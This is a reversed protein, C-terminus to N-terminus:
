VQQQPLNRPVTLTFTSGQGPTSEITIGGGLLHALETSITLGLGTGTTTRDREARYYAETLRPMMAPDIGPGSDTVRFVVLDAESEVTLSVVGHTTYKVANDLLNLLVRELLHRDTHMTEGSPTACECALGKEVALPHIAHAIEGTVEEILFTSAVPHIRGSQVQGLDLVNNVLALMRDGSRRIMKLQKRQEDNLEGPVSSLLVTSFGIISNLPTRFEHSMNALFRDEAELAETVRLRAEAEVDRQHKVTDFSFQGFAAVLSLALVVVVNLWFIQNPVRLVASRSICSEVVLPSDDVPASVAMCDDPSRASVTCQTVPRDDGATVCINSPIVEAGTPELVEAIAGLLDASFVLVGVPSDFGKSSIVRVACEATYAKGAVIKEASPWVLVPTPQLLASKAIEDVAQPDPPTSQHVQALIRGNEDTLAIWEYDNATMATQLQDTVGSAVFKDGAKLLQIRDGFTAQDGQSAAFSFLGTQWQGICSAVFEAEVEARSMAQELVDARYRAQIIWSAGGLVAFAMLGVVLARLVRARDNGTSTNHM